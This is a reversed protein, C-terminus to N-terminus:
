GFGSWALVIRCSEGAQHRGSPGGSVPATNSQFTHFQKDKDAYGNTSQKPGPQPANHVVAVAKAAPTQQQAGNPRKHANPGAVFGGAIVEALLAQSAFM